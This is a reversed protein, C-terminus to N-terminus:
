GEPALQLLRDARQAAMRRVWDPHPSVGFRGAAVQVLMLQAAEAPPMGEDLMQRMADVHEGPAGDNADAYIRTRVPGPLAVSVQVPAGVSTLGDALAESLALVGHKSVQYVAHQGGSTLAAVSAINFVTAPQGAAIMRPVFARVGHYVGNLNIDIVRHWAEPPQEWLLGVHEIGANNILLAVDGHEAFAAEALADVADHDRVDAVVTTAHGGAAEVRKALADLGTADVDSLVVKMGISTAVEAFGSGLGGAAGTIVAVRGSWRERAQALEGEAQESM